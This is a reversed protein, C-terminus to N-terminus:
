PAPVRHLAKLIRQVVPGATWSGYYFKGRFRQMDIDCKVVIVYRPEDAPAGAIFGGTYFRKNYGGLRADWKKATGTKGGFPLGPIRLRYGTGHEDEVVRRLLGTITALVKADDIARRPAPPAFPTLDGSATRLGAVFHPEVLYGGNVLAAYARALNLCTVHVANGWGMSIADQPGFRDPLSWGRYEHGPPTRRPWLQLAAAPVDLFGFRALLRRMGATGLREGIISFVINSSRVFGDVFTMNTGPHVDEVPKRRGPIVRFRGGPWLVPGTASVKGECLAQAAVFAKFISGPEYLAFIAEAQAQRPWTACALIRGTRPELILCAAKELCDQEVQLRVADIAIKQLRADITLVVDLPALPTVGMGDRPRHTLLLGLPSVREEVWGGEGCLLADFAGEAGYMGEGFADVTGVIERDIGYYRWSPDRDTRFTYHRGRQV